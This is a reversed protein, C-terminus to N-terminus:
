AWKELECDATEILDNAKVLAARVDEIAAKPDDLVEDILAYAQALRQDAWEPTPATM